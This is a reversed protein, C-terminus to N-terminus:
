RLRKAHYAWNSPDIGLLRAAECKKGAARRLAEAFLKREFSRVRAKLKLDAMVVDCALADLGDLAEEASEVAECTFGHADLLARLSEAVDAEDDVILLRIM